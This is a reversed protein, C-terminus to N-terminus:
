RSPLLSFLSASLDINSLILLALQFLPFRKLSFCYDFLIELSKAVPPIITTAPSRAPLLPIM